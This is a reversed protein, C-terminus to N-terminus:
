NQLCYRHFVDFFFIYSDTWFPRSIALVYFFEDHRVVIRCRRGIDVVPSKAEREFFSRMLHPIVGKKSLRRSFWPFHGFSFEPFLGAALFSLETKHKFKSYRAPQGKYVPCSTRGSFGLFNGLTSNLFFIQQWFNYSLRTSLNQTVPLSL